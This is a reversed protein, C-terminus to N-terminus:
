VSGMAHDHQSASTPTLSRSVFEFRFRVYRSGDSFGREDCIADAEGDSFVRSMSRSELVKLTSCDVEAILLMTQLRGNVILICSTPTISCARLAFTRLPDRHLSGMIIFVVQTSLPVLAKKLVDAANMVTPRDGESVIEAMGVRVGTRNRSGRGEDKRDSQGM